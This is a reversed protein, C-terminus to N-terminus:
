MAQGRMAGCRVAECRMAGCRVAIGTATGRKALMEWDLFLRIWLVLGWHRRLNWRMWINVSSPITEIGDFVRLNGLGPAQEKEVDFCRYRLWGTATQRFGFPKTM